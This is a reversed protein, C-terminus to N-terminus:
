DLYMINIDVPGEIGDIKGDDCLQWYTYNGEYNTKDTYHALWTDYKTPLWLSELYSKSSYIMGKYGAKEITSLFTNAMDTLGFFSLNYDNFSTWNEWDFVVPLTVDYDKIQKIVWEADKKAHKNSNAYSYFYIGVDIGLENAATINQVFKSDVYYDKNTGKTGGVKIFIFEVGANKIAEFDIDGQWGSVDIGIKTNENKHTEYIDSFLTYKPETNNSKNSNTKKPEIVNLTFEKTAINGSNDEAKFTLPYKGTANYDYDGEIYCNPNADENDGCLVSAAIDVDNGKYITYSNSLWIIPAVNDIIEIEYEYPVKIGDDNVFEFSIKQKGIKTSNILKDNVIKGNISDIFDSIKKEELFNMTLNDNLNVEIKATKIRIFGIFSILVFILLVFLIITILIISAKIINKKM